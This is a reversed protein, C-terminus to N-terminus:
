CWPERRGSWTRALGEAVLMDGISRGSRTLVRLKRGYSDEDRDGITEVSWPGQNLLDRLRHTAQVGLDYEYDCQPESVEPTDIDAIRIKTGRLWITDGDVVCTQRPGAGCLVMRPQGLDSAVTQSIAQSNPWLWAAGIGVAVAVVTAMGALKLDTRLIERKRKARYNRGVEIPVARFQPRFAPPSTRRRSM